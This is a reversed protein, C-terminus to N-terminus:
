RKDSKAMSAVVQQLEEPRLIFIETGPRRFAAFQKHLQKERHLAAPGDQHAEHAILECPGFQKIRSPISSAKGIKFYGAGSATEEFTLLQVLYVFSDRRIELSEVAFAQGGERKLIRPPNRWRQAISAMLPKTAQPSSRITFTTGDEWTATWKTGRRCERPHHGSMYCTM